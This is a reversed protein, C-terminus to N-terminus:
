TAEQRPSSATSVGSPLVTLPACEQIESGPPNWNSGDSYAFSPSMRTTAM